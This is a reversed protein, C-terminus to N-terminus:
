RGGGTGRVVYEARRDAELAARAVRRVDEARVARRREEEDDLTDLRGHMWADALEEAIAAGHQRRLAVLGASYRASRELEDDGLPADAVRGLLDLMGARAEEEREPSTAIYTLFAGGRRRLWPSAHVTYALARQERLEEFLRGALGGLLAALVALPHRDGSAASSAPFAMAVATQAKDREEVARGATWGPSPAAGAAARGPWDAFVAGADELQEPDLDGTVVVLARRALGKAHWARLPAQDLDRITAPDGLPLLGYPDGDFATRLVEELPYGFMDDRRRAADDAQLAAERAVDYPGLTPQELISRLLALADAASAARASLTFGALDVGVRAAVAGGLSEAAVALADADRGAAGRLSTRLLLRTIGANVATEHLTGGPLYAGVSVLGTGRRERILVDAGPWRVVRTGGIESREGRPRGAHRAWTPAAVPGPPCETETPPWPAAPQDGADRPLYIVACAADRVLWRAAVRRVDDATVAELAEQYDVVSDYGGRAEFEALLTARGDASELRRAWFTGLLARVREIQGVDPGREGLAAALGVTRSVAQSLTGVSSTLSVDLVGVTEPTYHTAGIASALGPVRVASSLWSGRGAGLVAAAVDLAPADAHALGPTRWGIAALPREVDGSLVRCTAAREAPEEPGPEIAAAPRRWAGYIRRGLAVAEDPDLAGTLAVIAREPTYRSEYYARVDDATLARLGAETGIRWRRMRHRRFLLEYLTEDTVASPTDLKRKAEQIIVELERALDGPDLAADTLADAQLEMARALGDGAAPVVAYYVTRDYSTSANLYGGLRQTERALVGPGRTPTGKFVMHELVHAIGVWHDPEDFYGARVHTVVAVVPVSSDRQVLLTLGNPLTDRIVSDTWRV